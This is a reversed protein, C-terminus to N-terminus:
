RSRRLRSLVVVLLFSRVLGLMRLNIGHRHLIQKLPVGCLAAALESGVAVHTHCFAAQAEGACDGAEASGVPPAQGRLVPHSGSEATSQAARLAAATARLETACAPVCEFVVRKYCREVETNHETHGHTGWGTYADSSLAEPNTRVAEARLLRSLVDGTRNTPPQPPFVRACDVVYLRGDRAAHGELDGCLHVEVAPGADPQVLHPKLNLQTAACLIARLFDRNDTQRVTMMGNDSGYILTGRDIPLQTEVFVRFGLFDIVTVLPFHLGEV